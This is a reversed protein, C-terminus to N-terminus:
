SARFCIILLVIVLSGITVSLYFVYVALVIFEYNSGKSYWYKTVCTLPWYFYTMLKFWVWIRSRIEKSLSNLAGM